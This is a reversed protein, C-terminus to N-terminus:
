IPETIRSSPVWTCRILLLDRAVGEEYDDQHFCLSVIDLGWPHTDKKKGTQDAAGSAGRDACRGGVSEAFRPM